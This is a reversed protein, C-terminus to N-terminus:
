RASVPGVPPPRDGFVRLIAAAESADSARTGNGHAVILGVDAASIGADALALEIARVPEVVDPAIQVRHYADCTSAYGAIDALIEAGRSLAHQREELIFM